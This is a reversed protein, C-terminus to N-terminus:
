IAEKQPTYSARHATCAPGLRVPRARHAQAGTRSGNRASRTTLTLGEFRYFAKAASITENALSMTTFTQGAASPAKVDRRHRVLVAFVNKSTLSVTCPGTTRASASAPCVPGRTSLLKCVSPEVEAWLADNLVM